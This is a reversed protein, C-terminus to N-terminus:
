LATMASWTLQKKSLNATSAASLLQCVVQLSATSILSRGEKRYRMSISFVNNFIEIQMLANSVIKLDPKKQYTQEIYLREEYWNEISFSICVNHNRM